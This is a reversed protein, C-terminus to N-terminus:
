GARRTGSKGPSVEDLIAEAAREAMRRKFQEPTLGMAEAALAVNGRRFHPAEFAPFDPIPMGLDAAAAPIVHARVYESLSVAHGVKTSVADVAKKILDAQGEWMTVSITKTQM